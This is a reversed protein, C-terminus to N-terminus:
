HPCHSKSRQPQLGEADPNGSEWPDPSLKWWVLQTQYNSPKRHFCEVLRALEAINLWKSLCWGVVWQICHTVHAAQAGTAFGILHPPQKSAKSSSKQNLSTSRNTTKFPFAVLHNSLFSGHGCRKWNRTKLLHAVGLAFVHRGDARVTNRLRWFRTETPKPIQMAGARQCNAKVAAMQSPEFKNFGLLSTLYTWPTHSLTINSNTDYVVLTSIKWFHFM